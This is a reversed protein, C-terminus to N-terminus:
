RWRRTIRKEAGVQRRGVESGIRSRQEVRQREEEKKERWRGGAQGEADASRGADQIGRVAAQSM